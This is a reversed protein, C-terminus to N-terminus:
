LAYKLFTPIILHLMLLDEPVLLTIVFSQHPIMYTVPELYQPYNPRSGEPLHQLHQVVLLVLFMRQLYQLHTIIQVQLELQLDLQQFYNLLMRRRVFIYNLDLPIKLESPM